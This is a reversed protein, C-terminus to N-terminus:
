DCTKKFVLHDLKDKYYEIYIIESYNNDWFINVIIRERKM